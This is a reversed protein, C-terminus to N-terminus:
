RAGDRHNSFDWTEKQTIINWVEKGGQRLASLSLLEKPSLTVLKRAGLYVMFFVTVEASVTAIAAGVMGYAPILIINLIMNVVGGSSVSLLYYKQRDCGLLCWGFLSSVLIVAANWLLIQFAITSNQYQDGFVLKIIQAAFLTGLILMPVIISIMLSLTFQILYKLKDISSKYFKSVLPFITNYYIGGALLIVIIIKYAANYWGVEKESKFFGLMVTDFNCYVQIAIASFAMPLSQNLIDRWFRFDFDLHFSGYKRIFVTMLIFVAIM